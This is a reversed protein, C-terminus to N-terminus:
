NLLPRLLRAWIRYGEAHMHLGDAVFIERKPRGDAALMDPGVELYQLNLERHAEAYARMLANAKRMQPYVSWRAFSPKVGIVIIRTKPLAGHVVQVFRELGAQVTEPAVGRGIDNDGSYLVVIRPAYPVVLRAAYYAADSMESGGFGRNITKLDPFSKPLDWLVISSSGTFVIEGNPPPNRQDQREFSRVDSEWYAANAPAAQRAQLWVTAVLAVAILLIPKRM